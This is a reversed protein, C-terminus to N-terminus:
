VEIKSYNALLDRVPEPIALSAASVGGKSGWSRSWGEIAESSLGDSTPRTSWAQVVWVVAMQVDNPITAWGWTATVKVNPPLAWIGRERAYVDANWKFGMEPSGPINGVFAPMAIYTYIPADDRRAPRPTWDDVGLTIDATGLSAPYTLKVESISAADDIDLFGSGDYDFVREETVVPLGFDRQTYARIADSAAGILISYKDDDRTDTPDIGLFARFDELSILDPTPTPNVPPSGLANVTLNDVATTSPSAVGTDWVVLYSGGAAPATLTATYIGSVGIEIIGATTRALVVSGDDEDVIQVGVTGVLGTPAGVLATNFPSSPTSYLDAM